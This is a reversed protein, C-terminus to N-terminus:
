NDYIKALQDKYLLCVMARSFTMTYVSLNLECDIHRLWHKEEQGSIRESTKSAEREVDRGSRAERTTTVISAADNGLHSTARIPQAINM